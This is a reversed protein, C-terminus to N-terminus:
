AREGRLDLLCGSFYGGAPSLLDCCLAGLDAASTGAGPALAVTTVRHRAWEISLTRAMNELGAVAPAAHEGASAGPALLVIRGGKAERGLFALQAAARVANWSAALCAVLADRGGGTPFVSAADVVLAHPRGGLEAAAAALASEAAAEDGEAEGSATLPVHAVAAGLAAAGAGVAAAASGAPPGAAGATAVNLGSLLSPRLLDRPDAAM